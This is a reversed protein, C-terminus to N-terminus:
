NKNRKWLLVAEQILKIVEKSKAKAINKSKRTNIRTIKNVLFYGLFTLTIALAGYFGTLYLAGISIILSGGVLSTISVFSLLLYDGLQGAYSIRSVYFSSSNKDFSEYDMNLTSNFVSQSSRTTLAAASKLNFISGFIRILTNILLLSFTLFINLKFNGESLIDKFIWLVMLDSLGSLLGIFSAFLITKKSEAGLWRFFWEWEKVFKNNTTIYLFNKKLKNLGRSFM